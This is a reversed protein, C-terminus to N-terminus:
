NRIQYLTRVIIRLLVVRYAIGVLVANPFPLWLSSLLSKVMGAMRSAMSKMASLKADFSARYELLEM